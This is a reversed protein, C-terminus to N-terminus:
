KSKKIIKRITLKATLSRGKTKAFQKIEFLAKNAAVFVIECPACM